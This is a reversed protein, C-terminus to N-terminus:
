ERRHRGPRKKPKRNQWVTIAQLIMGIIAAALTLKSESM